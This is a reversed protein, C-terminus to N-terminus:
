HADHIIPHNYSLLNSGLENESRIEVNMQRESEPGFNRRTTSGKGCEGEDCFAQKSCEFLSFLRRTLFSALFFM